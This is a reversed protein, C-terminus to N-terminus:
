EDEDDEAPLSPDAEGLLDIQGELDEDEIDEKEGDSEVRSVATIRDDDPLNFFRVGQTARGIVRCDTARFRITQGGETIIILEDDGMVENIGVVDGNRSSVRINIVGKGGRKILRYEDVNSRKGFGKECTTLITSGPRIVEAGVVVDDAALNIGAVGQTFRGAARVDTEQFRIAMGKRTGIFIDQDGNTIKVTVLKDDDGVNIAKIGVKRPNNYLSLANRQIRGKKTVFVLFQSDDFKSVPVVAEVKEGKELGELLNVIPRGKSARGGEPLEYVKLWYAKGFNTFFMLYDHTTGVFILEVWDEDKTEAGIVGKGGRKQRRYLDTDTRKIYGQHSITIVMRQEAILDEITMEGEHALLQTRRADGFKNKMALLDNKIVEYQKVESGLIELLSEILENLKKWEDELKGVELATLTRLRMELIADAQRKSMATYKERIVSIVEPNASTIKNKKLKVMLGSSMLAERAADTDASERIIRVIEDIDSLALVLGEVIHLREQAKNLDYRTGRVLVEKRHAVYLHLMRELSLYRPQNNVISLLIIGFSTQLQTRKYLNNIVVEPNEGRRLEIVVRMGERDSEDRVETIGLIKKDRVQHVIDVVLRSKNVQFPIETIIIAEKNGKLEEKHLKARMMFKGRGTRYADKIGKNGMIFGGTPLDPGPLKEMLEEVTLRRDRNDIMLVLADVIESLNHPPIKTAMGVAIGDSGNMLLQPVASPLSIPELEKGDYNPQFDVTNKEIDILMAEGIPLLRAETYRMAAAKDGDVSGFNGQGDVLPYRLNWPQAMRALTDYIASDGHPHYKGMVEGVIKASKNHARNSRYGGTYMAYLIRRHVPKMGDRVDPLARGVIVSMAYDLYSTRMEEEIGLNTISERSSDQM